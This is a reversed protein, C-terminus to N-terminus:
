NLHGTSQMIDLHDPQDFHEFSQSPPTLCLVRDMMVFVFFTPRPQEATASASGHLVPEHSRSQVNSSQVEHDGQEM